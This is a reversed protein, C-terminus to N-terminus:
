FDYDIKLEGKKYLNKYLYLQENNLTAIFHCYNSTNKFADKVDISWDKYEGKFYSHKSWKKDTHWAHIHIVDKGIKMSEWCKSDIAYMICSQCSLFANVVLEGAIMSSIGPQFGVDKFEQTTAYKALISETLYAQSSVLGLVLDTSGFISAGPLVMHKYKLKREECIQKIYNVKKTETSTYYNGEGILVKSPTYGKLHETLFVDCDTKLIYKYKKLPTRYEPLCFYHSNLFKYCSSLRIGNMVIPIIGHFKDVRKKASEPHYVVLDFEEELSYLLWSKWLWSFEEEMKDNDDFYVAIAKQNNTM